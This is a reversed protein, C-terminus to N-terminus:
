RSLSTPSIPNDLACFPLQNLDFAYFRYFIFTRQASFRYFCSWVFLYIVIAQPLLDWLLSNIEDFILTRQAIFCYLRHDCSFSICLRNCCHIEHFLTLKMSAILVFLTSDSLIAQKRFNVRKNIKFFSSRNIYGFANSEHGNVLWSLILMSNNESFFLHTYNLSDLLNRIALKTCSYM